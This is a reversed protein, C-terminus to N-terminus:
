PAKRMSGQVQSWPSHRTAAPVAGPMLLRSTRDITGPQFGQIADGDADEASLFRFMENGAGGDIINVAKSATITDSGSGTMVNEIGWLTDTGSASSVASGRGMFGTGLDVNTNAAIASMDLTDIGVACETLEDGHYTDNGDNVSAIFIDNGAGGHATDNGTGADIM